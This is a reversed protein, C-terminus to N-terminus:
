AFATTNPSSTGSALVDAGQTADIQYVFFILWFASNMQVPESMRASMMM